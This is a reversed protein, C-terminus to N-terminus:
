RRNEVNEIEKFKLEWDEFLDSLFDKLDEKKCEVFGKEWDPKNDKMDFIDLHSNKDEFIGVLGYEDFSIKVGKQNELWEDIRAFGIWNEM